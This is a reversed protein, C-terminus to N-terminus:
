SIVEETTVTDDLGLIRLESKISPRAIVAEAGLVSRLREALKDAKQAADLGPIEIIRGGNVMQRIRSNKIRMKALPINERAKKLVAAYSFNKGSVTITVAASRPPRRRRPVLLVRSPVSNLATGVSPAMTVRPRSVDGNNKKKRNRKRRVVPAWEMSTATVMTQPTSVEDMGSASAPDEVLPVRPPVLQENRVIKPRGRGRKPPISPDPPLVATLNDRFPNILPPLDPRRLNRVDVLLHILEDISAENINEVSSADLSSLASYIESSKGKLEEAEAKLRGIRNTM